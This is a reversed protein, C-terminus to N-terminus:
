SNKWWHTRCNPLGTDRLHEALKERDPLNLFDGVNVTVEPTVLRINPLRWNNETEIVEVHLRNRSLHHEERLKKLPIRGRVFTVANDSITIMEAKYTATSVRYMIFVLLGVELGAFPLIVWAGVFAWAIAIVMVFFIMAMMLYKTDVWSASRNPTLRITTTQPNDNSLEVM